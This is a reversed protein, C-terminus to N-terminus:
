LTNKKQNNERLYSLKNAVPLFFLEKAFSNLTCKSKICKFLSSKTNEIKFFEKLFLYDKKKFFVNFKKCFIEEIFKIIRQSYSIIELNQKNITRFMKSCILNVCVSIVKKYFSIVFSRKNGVIAQLIRLGTFFNQPYKKKFIHNVVWLFFYESINEFNYNGSIVKLCLNRTSKKKNFITKFIYCLFMTEEFSIDRLLDFFLRDFSEKKIKFNDIKNIKYWDQIVLLPQKKLISEKLIEDLLIVNRKANILFKKNKSFVRYNNLQVIKFSFIQNKNISNIVDHYTVKRRNSMDALKKAEQLILLLFSHILSSVEKIREEKNINNKFFSKFFVELTGLPLNNNVPNIVSSTM